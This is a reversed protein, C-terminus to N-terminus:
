EIAEYMDKSKFEPYLALIAQHEKYKLRRGTPPFTLYVCKMCIQSHKIQNDEFELDSIKLRNQNNELMAKGTKCSECQRSMLDSGLYGLYCVMIDLFAYECLALSDTISCVLM